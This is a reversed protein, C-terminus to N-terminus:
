TVDGFSYFSALFVDNSLSILSDTKGKQAPVQRARAGYELM